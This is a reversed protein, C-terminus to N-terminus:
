IGKRRRLEAVVRALQPRVADLPVVNEATPIAFSDYRLGMYGALHRYRFNSPPKEPCFFEFVAGWPPLFLQQILGAGHMAVLFDTARSVGM